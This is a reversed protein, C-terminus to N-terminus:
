LEDWKIYMEEILQELAAKEKALKELEVYDSAVAEMRADFAALEEEKAAIERELANRRREIKPDRAAPDKEKTEKRDSKDAKEPKPTPLSAASATKLAKIRHYRDYDSDPYDTFGGELDWIRNAFRRVFYRDHSVFILNGQFHSVAEEIWERSSLDLHNTPEDLILLNARNLMIMCLKLRAREGGSLQSVTKFQDETTAASSNRKGM